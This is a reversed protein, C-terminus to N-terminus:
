QVPVPRRQPLLSTVKLSNLTDNGFATNSLRWVDVNFTECYYEPHIQDYILQGNRCLRVETSSGVRIASASAAEFLGPGWMADVVGRIPTWSTGSRTIPFIPDTARWQVCDGGYSSDEYIAVEGTGLAGFTGDARRRCDREIPTIRLSATQDDIWGVWPYSGPNFDAHDGAFNRYYFLTLYVSAGVRVSSISNRAFLTDWNYYLNNLSGNYDWSGDNGAYGTPVRDTRLNLTQCSGQFNALQYLVVQNPEPNPCNTRADAVNAQVALAVVTIALTLVLEKMPTTTPTM